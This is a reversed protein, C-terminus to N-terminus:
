MHTHTHTYARMHATICWREAPQSLCLSLFPLERNIDTYGGLSGEGSTEATRLFIQSLEVSAVIQLAWKKQWSEEGHQIRVGSVGCCARAYVCVCMERWLLKQAWWLEEVMKLHISFPTFCVKHSLQPHHVSPIVSERRQSRGHQLMWYKLPGMLLMGKRIFFGNFIFHPHGVIPSWFAM